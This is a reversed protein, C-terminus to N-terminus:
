GLKMALEEASPHYYRMVMQLTKWGFAKALEQPLLLKAARSAAEHRLDHVVLDIIGALKTAERFEDDLNETCGYAGIVKGSKSKPMEKLLAIAATSLPVDRSSGNKTKNLHICYQDLKVQASTISLIEGARMGTLIALKIAYYLWPTGKRLSMAADLLRSEEDGELRRTRGEPPKPLEIKTVPNELSEMGWRKKAVTFLHSVVALELRITNNSIPKSQGKRTVVVKQRDDIYDAIDKGRIKSLPRLALSHKQWCKIRNIESTPQAKKVSVERAYRELAEGLTTKDAEKTCVFKGHDMKTEIDRAWAEADKRSEFTQTQTPYGKRRIQAQVQFPGRTTISAM